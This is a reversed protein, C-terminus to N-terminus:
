PYTLTYLEKILNSLERIWNSLEKIWNFLAVFSNTHERITCM